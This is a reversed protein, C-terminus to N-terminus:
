KLDQAGSILCAKPQCGKVRPLLCSSTTLFPYGQSYSRFLNSAIHDHSVGMLIDQRQCVDGLDGREGGWVETRRIKLMAIIIYGGNVSIYM